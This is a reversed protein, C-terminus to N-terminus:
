PEFRFLDRLQVLAAPDNTRFRGRAIDLPGPTGGDIVMRLFLEPTTKLVCDAAETTRGAEVACATPTLRVTYKHEGVSFYYTRPAILVGARYRQPMMAFLEPITPM